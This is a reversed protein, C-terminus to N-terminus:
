KNEETNNSILPTASQELRLVLNDDIVSHAKHSQPDETRGLLYDVSCDLYDAIRALSELRPLYGASKMTSLANKNLELETLMRSASINKQDLLGKIQEFVFLSKYEPM